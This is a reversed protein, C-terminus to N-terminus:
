TNEHQITTGDEWRLFTNDEWQWTDDSIGEGEQVITVELFAGVGPNNTSVELFVEVENEATIESYTTM